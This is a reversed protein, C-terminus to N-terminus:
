SLSAQEHILGARRLLDLCEGLLEAGSRDASGPRLTLLLWVPEGPRGIQLTLLAEHLQRRLRNRRVARKHVKTSVVVGCRWPSPARGRQDPPLLDPQSPLWRLMLFPGHSARGRRYLRAFISQGKLRHRQPLAM